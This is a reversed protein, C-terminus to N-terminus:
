FINSATITRYAKQMFGGENVVLKEELEEVVSIEGNLYQTLKESADNLRAILGGYRFSIVEYGFPKYTSNWESKHIKSLKSYQNKLEPIIENVTKEIYEREGTQYSRRLNKALEAKYYCITYVAQAIQCWGTYTKQTKIIEKTKELNENYAKMARPAEDADIALDYLIDAYLLRKGFIMGEPVSDSPYDLGSLTEVDEFKVKTLYYSTRAIDERSCAAGKYCYEAYISMLTLAYFDNCENGDDGWMSSFVTNVGCDVCARAAAVANPYAWGHAPLQGYWTGATGMFGVAKGLQKHLKLVMEYFDCEKHNYDWFILECDPIQNKRESPFKFDPTLAGYKFGELKFFMDSYMLPKFGYKKCIEVVRTLHKTMIEARNHYGYKKLYNGLGLDHTEDMGIHIRDSTFCERCHKIMEEIFKYTKEEECLLVTSTDTMEYICENTYDTAGPRSWRLYQGMHGLTQIHPILEVGMQEGHSVIEKLEDATYRGRMYGFRPRGPLEYTDETYLMLANMGLAAMCNIFKKVAEPKMVANRSCDLMNGCTTFHMNERISFETKGESLNMALLFCGRAIAAKENAGIAAKGNKVTVELRDCEYFDIDHNYTFGVTEFIKDKIFSYEM